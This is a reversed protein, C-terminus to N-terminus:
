TRSTSFLAYLEQYLHPEWPRVLCLKFSFDGEDKEEKEEEKADRVDLIFTMTSTCNRSKRLNPSFNAGISVFFSNKEKIIKNSNLFDLM